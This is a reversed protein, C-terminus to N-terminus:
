ASRVNVSDTPVEFASQTPTRGHMCLHPIPECCTARGVVAAYRQMSRPAARDPKM